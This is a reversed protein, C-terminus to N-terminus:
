FEGISLVNGHVIRECLDFQLNHTIRTSNGNENRDVSKWMFWEFVRKVKLHTIGQQTQFWLDRIRSFDLLIYTLLWNQLVEIKCVWTPISFRNWFISTCFKDDYSVEAVPLKRSLQMELFFKQVLKREM